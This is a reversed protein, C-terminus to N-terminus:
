SLEEISSDILLGKLRGTRSLFRYGSIHIDGAQFSSRVNRSLSEAVRAALDSTRARQAIIFPIPRGESPIYIRGKFTNGNYSSVRGLYHVREHDQVTQEIYSYTDHDFSVSLGHNAGNFHTSVNAVRATGSAFIPRHMAKLAPECKEIVSAFRNEDLIPLGEVKQKQLEEYQRGLTTNYDVNFGLAQSVVYDYGSYMLHGLPTERPATGLRYIVEGVAVVIAAIEWSGAVPPRALIRAKKLAPAQTIVKNNLILNTTIALSRQFGEVAQAVDYFDIEHGEAENGQYSLKFEVTGLDM